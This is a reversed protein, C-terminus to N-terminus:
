AKQGNRRVVDCILGEQQVFWVNKTKWEKEPGHMQFEFERLLQPVVKHMEMLSINKGICSRPGHGFNFFTQEMEKLKEPRSDLWREPIFSEPDPFVRSDRHLVWANIGVTTGGPIHKGSITVGGHPVERELAQGVSPHLRMAEKFVAGLFPLHTLSERYSVPDSIKGDRSADDIESHVKSMVDPNQMLLYVVARLAIATTDSGAFVNTSLHVVVDRTSLKQPNERHVAMWRSLMDAGDQKNEEKLEGDRKLPIRSSMAKLTFQLVKDWSEMSPVFIPFLPNGLLLPHMEPIQGCLSAYVLMGQIAEIMGDIDRGEELFGLKKAFVFEGVVDFAYYQLWVGLDIPKKQDAQSGLKSAFIRTCSDVAPELELLSTMSYANAVQRKQERHFKEDRGSFLNVQAKKNWSISQIPYLATKTFGKNLGYIIPVATPDSVSVHNPGIRVLYGHKRHLDIATTHHDGKWVSHLKWLRTWKAITPGPIDRLGRKFRNTLLRLVFAILVFFVVYTKM